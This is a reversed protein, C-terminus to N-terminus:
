YIYKGSTYGLLNTVAITSVKTKSNFLSVDGSFFVPDKKMNKGLPTHNCVRFQSFWEPDTFREHDGLVYWIDAHYLM